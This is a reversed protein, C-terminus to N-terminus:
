IIKGWQKGDWEWMENSAKREGGEVVYGGYLVIKGRAPKIASGAM